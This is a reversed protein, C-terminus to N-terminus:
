LTNLFFEDSQCLVLELWLEVGGLELMIYVVTTGAVVKGTALMEVYICHLVGTVETVYHHSKARPSGPSTTSYWNSLLCMFLPLKLLMIDAAATLM